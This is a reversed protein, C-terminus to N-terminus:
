PKEPDPPLSMRGFLGDKRVFQHYLAAIVHLLILNSLLTVLLAHVVFTPMAEFSHPMVGRGGWLIAPVLGATVITMLGTLVIAGVLLYFGYHSVVAIRALIGRGAAPRPRTMRLYFRWSMLGLMVLGGLVHLRLVPLLAPDSTPMNGMWVFGYALTAIILLALTWHLAVLVQPYRTVPPM